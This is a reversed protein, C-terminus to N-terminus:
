MSQVVVYRRKLVPQGCTKCGNNCTSYSPEVVPTGQYYGANCSSCGTEVAAAQTLIQRDARPAQGAMDARYLDSCRTNRYVVKKGSDLAYENSSFRRGHEGAYYICDMGDQTYRVGGKYYDYYSSCGTLVALGFIAAIVKKM